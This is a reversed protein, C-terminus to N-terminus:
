DFRFNSRMQPRVLELARQLVDEIKLVLDGVVHDSDDITHLATEHEKTLVIIVWGAV